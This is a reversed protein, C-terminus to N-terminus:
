PSHFEENKWVPYPYTAIPEFEIMLDSINPSNPEEPSWEADEQRIPTIEVQTIGARIYDLYAAAARSLDITLRKSYPGRDTVKVVCEKGNSLNRVKLMTGFPYKLHACTFSDRDYRDGNAM